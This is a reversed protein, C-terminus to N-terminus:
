ARSVSPLELWVDAGGGPRNAAHVAGGHSRAIAAVIALGLGTGGGHARDATAFREFARDVFGAEFGRGADTVHLEVSGNRAAAALAVEGGGHRLSNDVMNGLAQELRPRDADLALPADPLLARVRRDGADFRGAVSELLDGADIRTRRLPLEGHDLRALVLLDEALRILRETEEAASELAARLEGPSRGERLALELEARLIGLPTRLEHSADAAFAREREFAAELRDLMENLTHGLRAIEDRAPPVPLRRGDGPAVAAARRRMAEVPRLAGAAVAYGALAALLLAAAGGGALRGALTRLSEDRDGYATGVVVVLRGSAAEVPVVRLRLAGDLGRIQAHDARLPGRTARALLAGRLVPAHLNLTSARVSGDPNLVQALDDERDGVRALSGPLGRDSQRVLAAVEDSRADLSRDIGENLDDRFLGYVVLGTAGLVVAMVVTFALTLRARLPLRSV